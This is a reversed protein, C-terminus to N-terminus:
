NIVSLKKKSVETNRDLKIIDMKHKCFCLAGLKALSFYIMDYFMPNRFMTMNKDDFVKTYPEKM